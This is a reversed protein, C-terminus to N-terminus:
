NSTDVIRSRWQFSVDQYLRQVDRLEETLFNITEGCENAKIELEMRMLKESQNEKELVEFKNKFDEMEQNKLTKFDEIMKKITEGVHGNESIFVSIEEEPNLPNLSVQLFHVIESIMKSKSSALSSELSESFNELNCQLENM